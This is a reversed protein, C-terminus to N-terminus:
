ADPDADGERTTKAPAEEVDESKLALAVVFRTRDVVIKMKRDDVQVERTRALLDTLFQPNVEFDLPRGDYKIKKRERYWGGEKRSTLTLEGDEIKVGVKADYTGTLFIEARQIIEGLNAPLIIKEGGEMDLLKGVAEPYTEHSCRVSIEAAHDTKFHVWGRGISVKTINVGKLAVVSKAPILVDAPFGTEGDVRLLRYNDCGEIMKPTVHVCTALYQSDDTSCIKAAQQLSANTGEAIRGWGESAPVADLPLLVEASCGIGASRRKAKIRVESGTQTVEVEDDPIKALVALMDAANVVADFDLPSKIRVMINDNFTTLKGGKFVFANSQETGEKPTTGIIATSLAELLTNRSINM